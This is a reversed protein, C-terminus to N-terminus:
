AAASAPAETAQAPELRSGRWLILLSACGALAAAFLFVPRVSQGAKTALWGASWNAFMPGMGSGFFVLMTQATARVEPRAMSNVLVSVGTHYFVIVMGTLLYSGCLLWLNTSYAFILHRAVLCLCGFLISVRYSWRRVFGPQRRFLFIEFAVGICQIPGIWSRHVGLDQLYTPSYFFFLSFSGAILFFSALITLYSGDSILKKVAPWYAPRNPHGAAGKGSPPTHPLFFTLILMSLTAAIGLWLVVNLDSTHSGSRGQIHALWLYIPVSPLIWGISGWSRLAGFQTRPDSLHRFSLANMLTLAPNYTAYFATFTILLGWFNRQWAFLTLAILALFNLLTFLRDFALYRDAMMGWLFPFVLLTSSAASFIVGIQQYDLGRDRLLVSVFPMVTGGVAFQVIMAWRLTGPITAHKLSGM